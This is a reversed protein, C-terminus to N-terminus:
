ETNQIEFHAIDKIATSIVSPMEIKVSRKVQDVDVLPLITVEGKFLSRIVPVCVLSPTSNVDERVKGSTNGTQIKLSYGNLM